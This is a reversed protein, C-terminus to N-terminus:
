KPYNVIVKIDKTKGPFSSIWFPSLSLQASDINPYESLIQNFDKKSKGLLGASLKGGDFKWVIKANGSLSFNINQADAFSTGNDALSFTLDRINPIYVESDDYQPITDTAIKKTLSAENFLFGYLTGTVQLPLGGTSAFDTNKENINLFVADKFLVFGAPIQDSVKKFLKAKLSTELEKFASQKDADSVAPSNGVFGGSIAGKSRGYFKAYKPTGKFGFIKFDLPASNYGEGAESGYISTEIQGPTGDANMGPVTLAKTTKYIKGNSGELRTDISLNQPASSFTNYIVIVGKANLAVQKQETATVKKNEEGSIVVLDFSLGDTSADKIASLNEKLVFDKIKPNITIEARTFLFSLAFLFFVISIIAVFWLRNKKPVRERPEQFEVEKEIPKIKEVPKVYKQPDKKISKAKVMDQFLNKPM